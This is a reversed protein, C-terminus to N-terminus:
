RPAGQKPRARFYFYIFVVVFVLFLVTPIWSIKAREALAARFPAEIQPNATYWQELYPLEVQAAEYYIYGQDPYYYLNDFAKAKGDVIRYRTIEFGFDKDYDAPPDIKNEDFNAFAFYEKVFVENTLTLEMALGQGKVTVYAFDGEPSINVLAIQDLFVTKIKVDALYWKEDYESYADGLLGDYYVYGTDPYYHLQDFSQIAKTSADVWSRTIEYGKGPDAPADVPKLFNAFAFFELLAPDEMNIEGAIGPGSVTILSYPGKAFAAVPNILLITLIFLPLIKKM